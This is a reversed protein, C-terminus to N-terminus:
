RRESEAAKNGAFLGLLWGNAEMTLKDVGAEKFLKQGKGIDLDGIQKRTYLAYSSIAWKVEKSYYWPYKSEIDKLYPKARDILTQNVKFGKAHSYGKYDFKLLRKDM